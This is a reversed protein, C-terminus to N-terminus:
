FVVEWGQDRFREVVYDVYRPEVCLSNAFSLHDGGAVLDKVFQLAVPNRPELLVISGHNHVFFDAPPVVAPTVPTHKV